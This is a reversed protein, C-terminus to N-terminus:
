ASSSCRLWHVGCAAQSSLMLSQGLYSDVHLASSWSPHKGSDQQGQLATDSGNQGCLVDREAALLGARRSLGLHQTQISPSTQLVTEEPLVDSGPLKHVVQEKEATEAESEQFATSIAQVAHPVTHDTPLSTLSEEAHLWCRKGLVHLIAMHLLPM